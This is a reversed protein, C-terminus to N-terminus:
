LVDRGPAHDPGNGLLPRLELLVLDHRQEDRLARVQDGDRGHEIELLVVGLRLDLVRPQECVYLGLGGVRGLSGHERLVRTPPATLTPESTVIVTEVPGSSTATGLTIPSVWCALLAVSRASPSLTSTLLCFTVSGSSSPTIM